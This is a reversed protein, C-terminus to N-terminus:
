VDDENMGYRDFWEDIYKAWEQLARANDDLLRKICTDKDALIFVERAGYRRVMRERESSLPYGGIIYANQWRGRRHEVADLLADRVAFVIPRLRNPKVYRDCGSVCEWISDIDIVLDGESMAQKVFTTKGACPPGYVLFVEQREYGLKNHIYNHCRHHVLAINAPNLAIEADNVNEATLFTKHHGIIDYARSIPKGCYECIVQGDADVREQRIVTMLKRWETSQYFNELTRTM